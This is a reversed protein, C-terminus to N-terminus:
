NVEPAQQQFGSNNMQVISAQLDIISVILKNVERQIDTRLQALYTNLFNYTLNNGESDLESLMYQDIVNNIIYNFSLPIEKKFNEILKQFRRDSALNHPLNQFPSPPFQAPFPLHAVQVPHPYFPPPFPLTPPPQFFLPSPKQHFQQNPFFPLPTPTPTPMPLPVNLTPDYFFLHLLQPQPPPPPPPQPLLSLSRPRPPPPSPPPQPQQQQHQQHQQQQQNLPPLLQLPLQHRNQNFLHIPHSAMDPSHQYFWQQTEHEQQFHIHSYHQQQQQQQQQQQNHREQNYKRHHYRHIPQQSSNLFSPEFDPLAPLSPEEENVSNSM